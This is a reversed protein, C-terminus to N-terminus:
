EYPAVSPRLHEPYALRTLLVALAMTYAKSRNQSAFRVSDPRAIQATQYIM